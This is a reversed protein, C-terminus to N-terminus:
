EATFEIRRTFSREETTGPVAVEEGTTPDTATSGGVTVTYVMTVTGGSATLGYYNAAQPFSATKTELLVKGDDTM